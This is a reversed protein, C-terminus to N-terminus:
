LGLLNKIGFPDSQPQFLKGSANLGAGLLLNRNTAAQTQGQLVSGLLGGQLGISKAMTSGTLEGLGQSRTLDYSNISQDGFSSGRVGRAQQDAMLADRGAFSQRNYPGTVSDVLGGQNGAAQDSLGSLRALTPDTINGQRNAEALALLFPTANFASGLPDGLLQDFIGRGQNPAGGLHDGGAGGLLGKLASVVPAGYQKLLSQVDIPAKGPVSDNPWSTDGYPNVEPPLEGLNGGGAGEPFQMGSTDIQDLWDWMNPDGIPATAAGTAGGGVTGYVGTGANASEGAFLGTSADVGVTGAGAGGAATATGGAEAAGAGALGAGAAGVAAMGALPLWSGLDKGPESPTRDNWQWQQPGSVQVLGDPTVQIQQAGFDPIYGGNGDDHSNPAGNPYELSQRLGWPDNLSYLSQHGSGTMTNVGQEMPDYGSLGLASAPVYWKGDRQINPVGNQFLSRLNAM